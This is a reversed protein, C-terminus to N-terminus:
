RNTADDFFMDKPLDLALKVWAPRLDDDRTALHDRRVGSDPWGFSANIRAPGREKATMPHRSIADVRM